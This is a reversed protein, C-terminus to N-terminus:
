GSSHRLDPGQLAALQSAFCVQGVVCGYQIHLIGVIVELYPNEKVQTTGYERMVVIDAVEIYGTIEICHGSVQINALCQLLRVSITTALSYQLKGHM